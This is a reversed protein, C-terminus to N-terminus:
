AKGQAAAVPAKKAKRTGKPKRAHKVAKAQSRAVFKDWAPRTFVLRKHVLIERANLDSAPMVAVGPLNRASLHVNKDVGDTAILTTQGLLGLKELSEAMTKTKPATLGFSDVITLEQDKVKSLVASRVAAFRAKQPMEFGWSKPKPPHIVGGKLRVGSKRSGARANGTGKQRYLKKTSGSVEARTKASATGARKNAHYMVTAVHMLRTKIGGGLSSEEVQVKGKDGGSADKVAVELAM